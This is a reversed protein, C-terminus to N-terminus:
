YRPDSYYPDIRARRQRLPPPEHLRGLRLRRSAVPNVTPEYNLTADDPTATHAASRRCTRRATTCATSRTSGAADADRRRGVLARGADAHERQRVRATAPPARAAGTAATTTRRSSSSSARREDAHVVALARHRGRRRRTSSASTRSRARRRDFDMAGLSMGDATLDRATRTRASFNFAVHKATPRSRGPLAPAALGAPVAADVRVRRTGDARQLAASTASGDRIGALPRRRRRPAHTGDPYMARGPSSGSGDRADHTRRPTPTRSTSGPRRRLLRRRQRRAAHRPAVRRRQGLPM